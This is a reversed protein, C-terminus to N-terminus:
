EIVGGSYTYDDPEPVGREWEERTMAGSCVPCDYEAPSSMTRPAVEVLECGCDRCTM